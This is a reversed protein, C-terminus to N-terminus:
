VHQLRRVNRVHDSGEAAATSRFYHGSRLHVREVSPKGAVVLPPVFQPRAIEPVQPLVENEVIDVCHELRSVDAVPPVSSTMLDIEDIQSAAAFRDRDFALPEGTVEVRSVEQREPAMMGLTLVVDHRGVDLPAEDSFPSIQDDTKHLQFGQHLLERGSVAAGSRPSATGVHRRATRRSSKLAM